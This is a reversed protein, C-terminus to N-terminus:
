YGAGTHQMNAHMSGSDFHPHTYPLQARPALLQPQCPPAPVSFHVGLNAVLESSEKVWWANAATTIASASSAEVVIPAVVPVVRQAGNSLRSYLQQLIADYRDSGAPDLDDIICCIRCQSGVNLTWFM